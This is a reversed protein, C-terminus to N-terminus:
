LYTYVDQQSRPGPGYGISILRRTMARAQDAGDCVGDPTGPLRLVDGNFGVANTFDSLGATQTIIALSVLVRPGALVGQEVAMKLGLDLGGADRVTTFGSRLVRRMTEAVRLVHLSPPTASREALSRPPAALHDHCDFLGPMVTCAGADLFQSDAGRLHGNWRAIDAIRGGAVTVAVDRQIGGAGELLTGCRIVTALTGGNM